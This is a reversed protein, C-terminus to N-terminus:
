SLINHVDIRPKPKFYIDNKINTYNKYCAWVILTANDIMM